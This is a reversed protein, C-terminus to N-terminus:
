WEVPLMPFKDVADTPIRVCVVDPNPPGKGLLVICIKVMAGIDADMVEYDSMWICPLMLGKTGPLPVPLHRVLRKDGFVPRDSPRAFESGPVVSIPVVRKEDSM